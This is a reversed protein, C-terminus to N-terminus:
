ACRDHAAAHMCAAHAPLQRLLHMCCHQATQVLHWRLHKRCSCLVMGHDGRQREAQKLVVRVMFKHESEFPVSHVRPKAAKLNDLVLGAKMAATILAVETPAGNPTWHGGEQTLASDNCLLGGEMLAQM